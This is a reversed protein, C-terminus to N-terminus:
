GRSSGTLGPKLPADRTVGKVYITMGGSDIACPQPSCEAPASAPASAPANDTTTATTNNDTSSHGANAIALSIIILLIMAGLAFNRTSDSIKIGRPTAGIGAAARRPQWVSGDWWHHGDLSVTGPALPHPGAPQPPAGVVWKPDVSEWEGASNLQMNEPPALPAPERPQWQQGDWVHRGDPSIVLERPNWQRGDWVHRGDPSVIPRQKLSSPVAAPKSAPAPPPQPVPALQRSDPVPETPVAATIESAYRAVASGAAREAAEQPAGVQQVEVAARAAIRAKNEDGFRDLAWHYWEEHTERTVQDFGEERESHRVITGPPGM